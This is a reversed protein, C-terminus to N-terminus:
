TLHKSLIQLTNTCRDTQGHQIVTLTNVLARIHTDGADLIRARVYVCVRVRTHRRVDTPTHKLM